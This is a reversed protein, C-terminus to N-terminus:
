TSTLSLIALSHIRIPSVQPPQEPDINTQAIRQALEAPGSASSSRSSRQGPPPINEQLSAFSSITRQRPSLPPANFGGQYSSSRGHSGAYISPFGQGQPGLLHRRSIASPVDVATNPVGDALLRLHKRITDHIIINLSNTCKPGLNLQFFYHTYFFSLVHMIYIITLRLYISHDNHVHLSYNITSQFVKKGARWIDTKFVVTLVVLWFRLYRWSFTTIILYLRLTEM